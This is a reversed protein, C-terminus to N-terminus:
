FGARYHLRSGRVCNWDKRDDWGGRSRWASWAIYDEQPTYPNGPEHYACSGHAYYPHPYARAHQAMAPGALAASFVAGAALLALKTMRKEMRNSGPSRSRRM